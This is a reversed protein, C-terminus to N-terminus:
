VDKEYKLTYFWLIRKRNKKKKVELPVQKFLLTFAM